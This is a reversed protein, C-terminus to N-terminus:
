GYRPIGEHCRCGEESYLIQVNHIGIKPICITKGKMLGSRILKSIHRPLIIASDQRPQKKM